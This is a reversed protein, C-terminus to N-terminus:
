AEVTKLLQTLLAVKTIIFGAMSWRIGQDDFSRLSMEALNRGEPVQATRINIAKLYRWLVTFSIVFQQQKMSRM